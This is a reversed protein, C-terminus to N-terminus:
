CAGSAGRWMTGAGSGALGAAAAGAATAWAPFCGDDVAVAGAVVVGAAAVVGVATAVAEGVVAVPSVPVLVSVAAVVVDPVVEDVDVAAWGALAEVAEADFVLACDGVEVGAVAVDVAPVFVGAFEADAELTAEAVGCGLSCDADDEVAVAAGAVVDALLGAASVVTGVAVWPPASFDFM